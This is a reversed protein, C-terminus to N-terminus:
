SMGGATPVMAAFRATITGLLQALQAVGADGLERDYRRLANAAQTFAYWATYAHGAEAAQHYASDWRNRAALLAEGQPGDPVRGTFFPLPVHAGNGFTACVYHPDEPFASDWALPAWVWEPDGAWRYDPNPVKQQLGVFGSELAARTKAALEEDTAFLNMSVVGREPYVVYRGTPRFLDWGEDPDTGADHGHYAVIVPLWGYSDSTALDHATAADPAEDGEWVALACLGPLYAAYPTGAHGCRALGAPM